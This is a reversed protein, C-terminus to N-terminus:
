ILACVGRFGCVSQISHLICAGVSCAYAFLAFQRGDLCILIVCACLSHMARVRLLMVVACLTAFLCLCQANWICAFADFVACINAILCLCHLNGIAVVYLFQVCSALSLLAVRSVDISWCLHLWRSCHLVLYM